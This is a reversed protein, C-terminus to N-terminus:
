NSSLEKDLCIMYIDRRVAELRIYIIILLGDKM